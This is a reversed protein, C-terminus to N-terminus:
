KHVNLQIVAKINNFWYSKSLQFSEAILIEFPINITLGRVKKTFEIRM